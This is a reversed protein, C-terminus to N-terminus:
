KLEEPVFWYGENNNEELFAKFEDSTYAAAVAKAWETDENKKNVVAVLEYQKVVDEQLLALSPDTKSAYVISGPIVGYDLDGLTRPIQASDMEVIELNLKNEEIDAATAKILEVGDKIKILNAKQLIAYARAANSPDQPIAIVDGEAIDDLSSKKGPFLAAPVTPIPTLSVLEAGSETNFNNMYATHQDVNLDVGDDALAIDAQRLETFETAEIIYGDKELIPKIADLFLESYPGPSTGVKITTKEAGGEEDKGGCAVLVTAMIALLLMLYTKKM